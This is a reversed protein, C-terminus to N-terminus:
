GGEVPQDDFVLYAFVYTADGEGDGTEDADDILRDQRQRRALELDM